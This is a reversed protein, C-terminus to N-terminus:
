RGEPGRIEVLGLPERRSDQGLEVVDDLLGAQAELARSTTVRGESLERVEIREATILQQALGWRNEVVEELPKVEVRPRCRRLPRFDYRKGGDDSLPCFLPLDCRRTLTRVSGLGFPENREDSFM